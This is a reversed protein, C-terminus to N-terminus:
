HPLNLGGDVLIDDGTIYRGADSCLVLAMAALDRSEGITALPIRSEFDKKFSKDALAAKNRATDIVGPALNNITIGKGGLQWALTKVMNRQAAKTAAYVIMQRSPRYQQVSGVTVIRGWGKSEMDPVCCQILELSARVNVNMQSSFDSHTVENWERHIQISANLVLIDISIGLEKKLRLFEDTITDSLLDYEWLWCKLGCAMIEKRTEEALKRNSRYNLLIDAGNEALALAISRGIGQSSGTVLATKGKINLLDTTRMM